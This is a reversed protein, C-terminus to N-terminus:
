ENIAFDFLAVKLMKLHLKKNWNVDAKTNAIRIISRGPSKVRLSVLPDGIPNEPGLIEGIQLEPNPIKFGFRPSIRSQFYSLSTPHWFHGELDHSQVFNQTPIINWKLQQLM